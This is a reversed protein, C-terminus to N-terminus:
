YRCFHRFAINCTSVMSFLSFYFAVETRRVARNHNISEEWYKPNKPTADSPPLVALYILLKPIIPLALAPM